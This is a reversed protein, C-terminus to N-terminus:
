QDFPNPHCFVNIVKDDLGTQGMVETAKSMHLQFKVYSLIFTTNDLLICQQTHGNKFTNSIPLKGYVM